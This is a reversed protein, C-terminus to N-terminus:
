TVDKGKLIPYYYYIYYPSTDVGDFGYAYVEHVSPRKRLELQSVSSFSGETTEYNLIAYYAYCGHLQRLRPDSFFVSVGIEEGAHITLPTQKDWTCSEGETINWYTVHVDEVDAEQLFALSTLTMDAEATWRWSIELGSGDNWGENIIQVSYAICDLNVIPYPTPIMQTSLNIRGLEQHYLKGDITVDIYEIVEDVQTKSFFVVVEYVYFEPVDEKPMNQFAQALEKQQALFSVHETVFLQGYAQWDVGAYTHYLYHPYTHYNWIDGVGKQRLNEYEYIYLEYKNETPVELVIEEVNLKQKSYINFEFHAGVYCDMYINQADLYIGSEQDQQGPDDSPATATTSGVAECGSLLAALMLLALVLCNIKKIVLEGKKM